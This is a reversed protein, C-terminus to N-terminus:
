GKTLIRQFLKELASTGLSALLAAIGLKVEFPLDPFWVGAAGAGMAIGGTSLARGIIIRRTLKEQGGLLQGIGILIGVIAFIAAQQLGEILRSM